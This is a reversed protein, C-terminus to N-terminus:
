IKGRLQDWRCGKGTRTLRMEMRGPAQALVRHETRELVAIDEGALLGRLQVRFIGPTQWIECGSGRGQQLGRCRHSADSHYGGCSDAQIQGQRRSHTRLEM